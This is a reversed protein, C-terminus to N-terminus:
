VALAAARRRRAAWGIAALGAGTLAWTGPEPIAPVTVLASTLLGAEGELAYGEPVEIRLQGTNFGDVSGWSQSYDLSGTVPILPEPSINAFVNSVLQFTQGPALSLTVRLEGALDDMAQRVATFGAGAFPEEVYVFGPQFYSVTADGFVNVADADLLDTRFDMKARFDVNSFAVTSSPLSVQLVAGLQHFVNGSYTAFAGDFAYVFTIDVPATGAGVVTGSAQTQALAYGTLADPIGAVGRSDIEAYVKGIGTGDDAFAKTLIKVGGASEHVVGSLNVSQPGGGFAQEVSSPTTLPTRQVLTTATVAQSATALAAALALTRFRSATCVHTNM